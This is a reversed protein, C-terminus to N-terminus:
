RRRGGGGGGRNGGGGGMSQHGRSSEARANGGAGYGSFAGTKTGPSAAQGYGRSPNNAPRAATNQPRNPQTTGRNPNNAAPNNPRNNNANNRNLNNNNVNRNVNNNNVNNRNVNNNNVNNRNVNNINVNNQNVTTRNYNNRNYNPNYPTPRAWSGNYYRNGGAYINSRSVYVNRNYVVTGGHWGCNWNNWGWGCCGGSMAAGVALGVGFSIIGTAVLAGTSYGPPYYPTGYVVTPNYTPVYVIQPSAPQIVITQPDQQVVTIQPTSKLNGAAKAQARLRQVSAMVDAQQNYFASGLASTWSLNNTMNDLVSPFQTLAQVSPDWQQQNVADVLAQGQLNSNDKLWQDAEAVENPYTSAALVQAVLADPYLAIPAVLADIQTATLNAPPAEQANAPSTALVIGWALFIALFQKLRVMIGHELGHRRGVGFGNGFQM